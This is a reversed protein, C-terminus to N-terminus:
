KFEGDSGLTKIKDGPNEDALDQAEKGHEDSIASTAGATKESVAQGFKGFVAILAIAILVVIIIYEVMTQGSKRKQALKNEKM